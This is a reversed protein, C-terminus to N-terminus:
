SGDRSKRSRTAPARLQERQESQDGFQGATALRIRGALSRGEALFARLQKTVEQREAALQRQRLELKQSQALCARLQELLEKHAEGKPGVFFPAALALLSQWDYFTVAISEKPMLPKSERVGCRPVIRGSYLVNLL